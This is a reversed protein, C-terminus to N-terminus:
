PSRVTCSIAAGKAILRGAEDRASAVALLTRTPQIDLTEGLGGAPEVVGAGGPLRAEVTQFSEECRCLRFTVVM